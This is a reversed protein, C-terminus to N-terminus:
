ASREKQLDRAASVVDQHLEEDRCIQRLDPLLMFGLLRLSIEPPTYPNRVLAKKVAYRLIWKKSEFVARLIEPKCPRRSAIKLVEKETMRANTLLPVIVSADQDFILRDLYRKSQGKALSKRVGLPIHDMEPDVPVEEDEVKPRRRATPRSLIRLVDDCGGERALVYVASMRGHGMTRSLLPVDVLSLLVEEYLPVKKGARRCILRIVELAAADDLSRLREGLLVTRSRRDQVSCIERVLKETVSEWGRDTTM